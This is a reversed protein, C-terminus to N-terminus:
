QDAQWRAVGAATADRVAQGILAGLRTHKGVYREECLGEPAAVVICDTGTGTAPRGSVRSAVGGALVAATRAEACLAVAEVLAGEDLPVPLQCLLNITGVPHLRGPPDGASLANGLGVTAVCRVTHAGDSLRVDEFTSLDRATLLGVADAVGSRALSDALLREPDVGVALEDDSVQRWAVARARARGGRLPAWSLTAHPRAFPVILLRGGDAWVPTTAADAIREALVASM